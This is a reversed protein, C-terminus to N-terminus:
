TAQASEAIAPMVFSAAIGEGGMFEAYLAPATHRAACVLGLALQGVRAARGLDGIRTVINVAAEQDVPSLDINFYYLASGLAALRKGAVDVNGANHVIAGCRTKVADPVTDDKDASKGDLDFPLDILGANIQAQELVEQLQRTLGLVGSSAATQVVARHVRGLVPAESLETRLEPTARALMELRGGAQMAKEWYPTMSDQEDRPTADAIAALMSPLEANTMLLAVVGESPKGTFQERPDSVPEDYFDDEEATSRAFPSDFALIVAGPLDPATEFLSVISNPVSDSAPLFLIPPHANGQKLEPAIESSLQVHIARLRSLVEEGSTEAPPQVFIPFAASARSTSYISYLADAIAPELRDLATIGEREEQDDLITPRIDISPHDVDVAPLEVPLGLRPIAVMRCDCSFRRQRMEEEYKKQAAERTAKREAQAAEERAKAEAARKGHARKRLAYWLLWVLLPPLVHAAAIGAMNWHSFDPALALWLAAVWATGAALLVTLNLIM